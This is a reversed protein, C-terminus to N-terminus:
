PTENKTKKKHPTVLIAIVVLATNVTIPDWLCMSVDVAKIIKDAM